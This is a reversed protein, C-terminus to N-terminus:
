PKEPKNLLVQVQPHLILGRLAPTDATILFVPIKEMYESFRGKDTFKRNFRSKALHGTLSPLIGGGLYVGGRAGLTLALDGAM